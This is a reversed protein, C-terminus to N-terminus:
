RHLLRGIRGDCKANVRAYEEATDIAQQRAARDRAAAEFVTTVTAQLQSRLAQDSRFNGGIQQIAAVLRSHYDRLVAHDAAAHLEEHAIVAQRTCADAALERAVMLKANRFGFRGEVRTLRVCPQVRDPIVEIRAQYEVFLEAMWLGATRGPHAVAGPATRAVTELRTLSQTLDQVFPEFVPAVAVDTPSAQCALAPASLVTGVVLWVTAWVRIEARM